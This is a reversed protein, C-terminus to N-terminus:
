KRVNAQRTVARRWGEPDVDPDPIGGNLHSLGKKRHERMALRAVLKKETDYIKEVTTQIDIHAAELASLRRSVTWRAFRRTSLALAFCSVLCAIASILLPLLM